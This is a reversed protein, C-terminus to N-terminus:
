LTVQPLGFMPPFPTKCIGVSHPCPRNTQIFVRRYSHFKEGGCFVKVKNFYRDINTVETSMVPNKIGMFTSPIYVRDGVKLKQFEQKTMFQYDM